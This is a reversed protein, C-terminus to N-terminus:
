KILEEKITELMFTERQISMGMSKKNEAMVHKNYAIAEDIKVWVPRSGNAIEYAEMQHQGLEYDASCVYYFSRVHSIDYEPYYCPRFEEYEGFEAVISVNNAGTEEKIERHLSKEIDEGEEIGGGPFTYDNYRETYILLIEEKNTIIARVTDRHFIKPDDFDKFSPHYTTKLHRM